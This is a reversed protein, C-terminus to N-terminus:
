LYCLFLAEHLSLDGLPDLDAPENIAEDAM